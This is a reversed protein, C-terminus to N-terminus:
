EWWQKTKVLTLDPLGGIRKVQTETLVLALRNITRSNLETRDFKLKSMANQREQFASWDERDQSGIWPTQMERSLEVMGDCLTAYSPGYEAALDELQARQQATLDELAQASALKEHAKVPDKFVQPYARRDYDSRLQWAEDSSLAAVMSEIAARNLAEIAQDAERLAAQSDGVMEQFRQGWDVMDVEETKIRTAELSWLDMARRAEVAADYRRRFATSVDTEYTALLPDIRAMTEDSFRQRLALKVIDITVESGGLRGWGRSEGRLCTERERMLRVQRLRDSEEGLFIVEGVEDFFGADVARIAELARRRVRYLEDIDDATATSTAKGTEPDHQWLRAQATQLAAIQNEEVGRFREIYDDHLGDLIAQQTDDIKLCREYRALQGKGIKPPLFEDAGWVIDTDLEDGTEGKKRKVAGPDVAVTSMGAKDGGTGDGADALKLVLTSGLIEKLQSEGRARIEAAKVGYEAATEQLTQWWSMDMDFPSHEKSQTDIATMAAEVTRDWEAGVLEYLAEVEARTAGTVDRSKLAKQYPTPNWALHATLQSYSKSVLAQRLERAHRADIAGAITTMTRRNLRYIGRNLEMAEQGLEKMVEQVIQMSQKMKEPDTFSTEDIGQEELAEFMAFLTMSTAESLKKIRTTLTNEYGLLIPDVALKEEPSLEIDLMLDSLDAARQAQFLSVESSTARRRERAKRARPLQALQDDTLITQIQDFFGRDVAEIKGTLRKMSALVRQVDEKKPFMGGSQISQMDRLFEAIDTDRLVRFQDKYVDHFSQMAQQQQDSLDLRQAYRLLEGTSIPDPLTGSTGQGLVPAGISAVLIGVLLVIGAGRARPRTCLHM